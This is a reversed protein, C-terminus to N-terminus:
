HVTIVARGYQRNFRDYTNLSHRGVSATRPVTYTTFWSGTPNHGVSARGYAVQNAPTDVYLRVPDNPAMGGVSVKVAQGRAPTTDSLTVRMERGIVYVHDYSKQDLVPDNVEVSIEGGMDLPVEIRANFAGDADTKPYWRCAGHHLEACSGIGATPDHFYASLEITVQSSPTYGSGVVRIHGGAIPADPSAVFSPGSASSAPPGVASALASLAVVLLVRIKM